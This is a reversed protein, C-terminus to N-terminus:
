SGIKLFHAYEVAAGEGPEELFSLLDVVTRAEGGCTIVVNVLRRQRFGLLHFFLFVFFHPRIFIQVFLDFSEQRDVFFAPAGGYVDNRVKLVEVVGQIAVVRGLIGKVERM